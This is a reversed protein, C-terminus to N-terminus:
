ASVRQVALLYHRIIRSRTVMGVLKGGALVPLFAIDNDAMLTLARDLTVEPAVVVPPASMVQGVLTTQWQQLPLRVIDEKAVVGVLQANNKGGVVALDNLKRRKLIEWCYKVSDRPTVVPIDTSMVEKVMVKELQPFYCDLRHAPSDAPTPVQSEYITNNGVLVYAIGVAIMAPVLLAYGGTMEGVMFMVALPARAVAGFLAMMGVVIFPAPSAPVYAVVRHLLQWLGTGLMGGIFLGPAFVGGSGGSGISLSTSLIKAFILLLTITLPLPNNLMGLQLWGYGMGLVQPLFLGIIGALLGGVAPKLWKPMNLERFYNRTAYFTRVYLIGILGGLVGLLSYYLLTIPHFSVQQSMWGFVPTYGAYSAFITYGILSAIFSPVLAQIEFGELYLIETSLLAGGLPAKFIAGIGAGIGTALAIRRDDTNLRLLQGMLSGFGAAIQATPGERGASGGSGITIASAIVKILPVRARIIGDKYHFAEIAADTGHGEAEPAFRFVILGSLLGGLTTVVPIMWRRSIETVVLKGEGLPAPPTYGVGLQLFLYTSWHIAEYFAIAGVGAVVGIATAILLWKRLYDLHLDLNKIKALMM